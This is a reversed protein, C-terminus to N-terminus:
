LNPKYCSYLQFEPRFLETEAILIKNFRKRETKNSLAPYNINLKLNILVLLQKAESNYHSQNLKIQIENQKYYSGTAISVSSKM